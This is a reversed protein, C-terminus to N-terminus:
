KQEMEFLSKPIMVTESTIFDATCYEFALRTNPDGDTSIVKVLYADAFCNDLNKTISNIIQQKAADWQTMNAKTYIKTAM